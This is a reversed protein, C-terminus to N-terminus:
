FVGEGYGFDEMLLPLEWCLFPCSGKDARIARWGGLFINRSSFLRFISIFILFFVVKHYLIGFNKM